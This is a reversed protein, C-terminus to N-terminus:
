GSGRRTNKTPKGGVMLVVGWCVEGADTISQQWGAMSRKKGPDSDFRMWPEAPRSRCELMLKTVGM